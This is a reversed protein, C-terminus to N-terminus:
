APDTVSSAFRELEKRAVLTRGGIKSPRLEGRKFLAYVTSRGIRLYDAVETLTLFDHKM